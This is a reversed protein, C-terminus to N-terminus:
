KGYREIYEQLISVPIAEIFSRNAARTETMTETIVPQKREMLETLLQKHAEAIKNQLTAQIDHTLKEFRSSEVILYIDPNHVANALDRTYNALIKDIDMESTDIHSM